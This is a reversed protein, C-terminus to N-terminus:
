SAGNVIGENSLQEVKAAAAANLGVDVQARLYAAGEKAQTTIDLDQEAAMMARINLLYSRGEEKKIEKKAILTSIAIRPGLTETLLPLCMLITIWKALNEPGYLRAMPGFVEGYRKTEDPFLRWHPGGFLGIAGFAGAIAQGVNDDTLDKVNAPLRSKLESALAQQTNVTGKPRRYGKWGPQEYKYGEPPRPRGRKKREPAAIDPRAVEVMPPKPNDGLDIVQQRIDDSMQFDDSM